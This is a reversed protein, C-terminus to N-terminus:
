YPKIGPQVRPDYLWNTTEATLPHIGWVPGPRKFLVNMVDGPTEGLNGLGLLAGIGWAIWIRSEDTCGGHPIPFCLNSNYEAKVIVGDVVKTIWVQRCQSGAAPSSFPRTLAYDALARDAVLQFTINGNVRQWLNTADMIDQVRFHSPDGNYIRIPFREWRKVAGRDSDVDFWKASDTDSTSPGVRSSRANLNYKIVWEKAQPSLPPLDSWKVDRSPPPPAPEPTPEPIPTPTPEPIPAPALEPTPSPGVPTTEGCASFMLAVFIAVFASFRHM